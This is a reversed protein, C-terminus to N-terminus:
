PIAYTTSAAPTLRVLLQEKASHALELVRESGQFVAEEANIHVLTRAEPCNDPHKWLIRKVCHPVLLNDNGRADSESLPTEAVM